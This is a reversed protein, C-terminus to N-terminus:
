EVGGDKVIGIVEDLEVAMCDDGNNFDVRFACGELEDIVKGVDYATSQDEIEQLIEYKMLTDYAEPNEYKYCGWLDLAEILKDADILRPM